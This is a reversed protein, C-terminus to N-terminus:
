ERSGSGVRGEWFVRSFQFRDRLQPSGYVALRVDSPMIKTRERYERSRHNARELVETLMYAVARTIGAVCEEEFVVPSDAFRSLFSAIRSGVYASDFGPIPLADPQRFHRHCWVDLQRDEEGEPAHRPFLLEAAASVGRNGMHPIATRQLYSLVMENVVDYLPEAWPDIFEGIETGLRVFTWDRGHVILKLEEANRYVRIANIEQPRLVHDSRHYPGLCDAPSPPLVGDGPERSLERLTELGSFDFGERLRREFREEPTVEKRLTRELGEFVTRTFCTNTTFFLFSRAAACDDDFGFRGFKYEGRPIHLWAGGEPWQRQRESSRQDKWGDVASKAATLDVLGAAEFQEEVFEEVAVVEDWSRKDYYGWDYRNIVFVGEAATKDDNFSSGSDAEYPSGSVRLIKDVEKEPDVDSHALFWAAVEKTSLDILRFVNWIGNRAAINYEIPQLKVTGSLQPRPAPCGELQVPTSAGNWINHLEGFCLRGSTVSITSYVSPSAVM